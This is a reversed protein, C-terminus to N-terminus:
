SIVYLVRIGLINGAAGGTPDGGKIGIYVDESVVHQTLTADSVTIQSSKIGRVGTSTLIYSDNFQDVGATKTYLALTTNTGYPTTWGTKTYTDMAIIQITKGTPCSIFDIPTDSVGLTLIQAHTLETHTGLVLDNKMGQAGNANFGYSMNTGSAADGVLQLNGGVNTISNATQPSLSGDVNQKLGSGAVSSDVNAKPVKGIALKNASIQITSNDVNAAYAGSNQIIAGAPDVTNSNLNRKQVCGDDLLGNQIPYNDILQTVSAIVGVGTTVKCVQTGTTTPAPSGIAVASINYVWGNSYDLYIYNDASSTLAVQESSQNVNRNDVFYDLAPFTIKAAGGGSTDTYSFASQIYSSLPSRYAAGDYNDGVKLGQLPNVPTGNPNIPIVFPSTHNCLYSILTNIMATLTEGNTIGLCNAIPTIGVTTIDATTLAAIETLLNCVNTIITNLAQTVTQGNTISMCNTNIGITVTENTNVTISAVATQLNCIALSVAAMLANMNGSSFSICALSGGNWTVNSSVVSTSNGQPFTICNCSM